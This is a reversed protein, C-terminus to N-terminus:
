FGSPKRVDQRWVGARQVSLPREPRPSSSTTEFGAFEDKESAWDSTYRGFFTCFFINDIRLHAVDRLRVRQVECVEERGGLLGGRWRGYRPHQTEAPAGCGDVARARVGEVYGRLEVCLRNWVARQYASVRGCARRAEVPPARQLRGTREAGQRRCEVERRRARTDRGRRRPRLEPRVARLLPPFARRLSSHAPAGVQRLVPMRGQKHPRWRPLRQPVAGPPVPGPPRWLPRFRRGSARSVLGFPRGSMRNKPPKSASSQAAFHRTSRIRSAWFQVRWPERSPGSPRLPPLSRHCRSSPQGWCAHTPSHPRRDAAHVQTRRVRGCGYMRWQVSNDTSTANALGM